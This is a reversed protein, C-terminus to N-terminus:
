KNATDPMFKTLMSLINEARERLKRLRKFQIDRQSFQVQKLFHIQSSHRM